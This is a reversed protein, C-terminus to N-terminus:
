YIANQRYIGTLGSAPVVSKHGFLFCEFLQKKGGEEEKPLTTM